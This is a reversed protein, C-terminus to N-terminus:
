RNFWWVIAAVLAVAIIGVLIAVALSPQQPAAPAEPKRRRRPDFKVVNDPMARAYVSQPCADM